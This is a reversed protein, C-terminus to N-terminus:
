VLIYKNHVLVYSSSSRKYLCARSYVEICTYVPKIATCVFLVQVYLYMSLVYQYMGWKYWNMSLIYHGFSNIITAYFAEVQQLTYCFQPVYQKMILVYWYM